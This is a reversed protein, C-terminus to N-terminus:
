SSKDFETVEKQERLLFRVVFWIFSAVLSAVIGFAFGIL